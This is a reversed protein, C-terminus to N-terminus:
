IAVFHTGSRGRVVNTEDDLYVATEHGTRECTHTPQILKRQATEGVTVASSAAGAVSSAAASGLVSAAASARWFRLTPVHTRNDLSTTKEEPQTKNKLTPIEDHRKSKKEKQPLYSTKKKQGVVIMYPVVLGKQFTFYFM